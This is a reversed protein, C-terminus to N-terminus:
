NRVFQLNKKGYEVEVNNDIVVINGFDCDDEGQFSVIGNLIYGNPAFFNKILYDLWEEYYYFRQTYDWELETGDVSVVWDCWLGPQSGPSSNYDIISEDHEQGMFDLGGVFYEGDVGLEGNYCMYKWNPFVKKIKENDRKMRRTNSLSNVYRALDNDVPKNFKFNGDFCTDYGM